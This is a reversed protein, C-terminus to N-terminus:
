SVRVYATGNTYGSPGSYGMCRWTGSLSGGWNGYNGDWVSYSYNLSSGLITDGSIRQAASSSGVLAYTGVDGFGTTPPIVASDFNDQARIISTM